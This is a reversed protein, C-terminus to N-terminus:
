VNEYSGTKFVNHYLHHKQKKNLPTRAKEKHPKRSCTDKETTESASTAVGETTDNSQPHNSTCSMFAVTELYDNGRTPGAPLPHIPLDDCENLKKIKQKVMMIVIYTLCVSLFGTAAGWLVAETSSSVRVGRTEKVQQCIKTLIVSWKRDKNCYIGLVDDHLRYGHNCSVLCYSGVDCTCNSVLIGNPIHNPCRTDNDHDSTCLGIAGWILVLITCVLACFDM